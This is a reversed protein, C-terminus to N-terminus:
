TWNGDAAGSHSMENHSIGPKVDMTFLFHFYMDYTHIYTQICIRIYTNVKMHTHIYATSKKLPSAPTRTGRFMKHIKDM